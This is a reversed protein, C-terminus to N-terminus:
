SALGSTSCDCGGKVSSVGLTPRAVFSCDVATMPAERDSGDCAVAPDSAVDAAPRPRSRKRAALRDGSARGTELAFTVTRLSSSCGAASLASASEAVFPRSRAVVSDSVTYRDGALATEAFTNSVERSELWIPAIRSTFSALTWLLDVLADVRPCAGARGGCAASSRCCSCSARVAADVDAGSGADGVATTSDRMGNWGTMQRIAKGIRVPQRPWEGSAPGDASTNRAVAFARHGHTLRFASSPIGNFGIDRDPVTVSDVARTATTGVSGTTGSGVM